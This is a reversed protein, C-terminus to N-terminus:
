EILTSLYGVVLYGAFGFKVSGTKSYYQQGEINVMLM